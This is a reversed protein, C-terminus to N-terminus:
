VMRSVEYADWVANMINQPKRSDGILFLNATHGRLALYLDQQPKLGIASIITDAQVYKEQFDGSLFLAGGDAIELFSTSTYIEVGYFRLLDILMLRNMHQVPIGSALVEKMIEVIVVKRGQQSLWLATECGILGGGLVLVNKGAKKRGLLLDIATAIKEQELGPFDPSVPKSGTAIITVDPNEKRVLDANAEFGTRIEIDLTTLERRGWDLYRLLDRKFEPISAEVLHGGLSDNKECLIVRHGRLAAVRAAEMGAPGGGVVIVKRSKQAQEIRYSRERGTAPNVACCLPKGKSIRGMCGDHCGICPRIEETKDEEVKRVWFPDTLLGKGIAVIDAKGESIVKEAIEPISLKGVSVVPIRVVKKAAAAMDIMLGSKQYIPPHPWYWSDYCGADVHLSDFGAAELRRAMELGEEIDRGAEVFREGPLAGMNMAKMYHKLGFRYQVPFGDGTKEKIERLVEIPFRLRGELDGGYKDTRQNWLATAFQDFLYGEHGHLEIGDIGAAALVAAARGFAKVLHEVEETRLERCTRRPDWYYPNASASVPQIGQLRIPTAVRGFGATLQVFIKTGLSHVAEALETFPTMASRSMLAFAGQFPEAENEVKFLGTIILGVGGRAREIYYDIGRPSLSGDLNVLGAVGMPAMAIRNKIEVEGIKIPDFIKKHRNSM